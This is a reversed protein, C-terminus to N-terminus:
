NQRKEGLAKRKEFIKGCTCNACTAHHESGNECGHTNLSRDRMMIALFLVGLALVMVLIGLFVTAM